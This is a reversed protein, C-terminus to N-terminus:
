NYAKGLNAYCNTGDYTFALIDIANATGTLTFTSGGGGLQKWTCGTGGSLNEGGTGDQKLWIVYSGGNVLGTLNLTRSGSHVTFTLSANACVASGIAWTVTAGDTQSAFAGPVCVSGTNDVLQSSSNSGLVTKSAPIVAGNVKGVTTALSGSSNTVDGSFAPVAATPLTTTPTCTKATSGYVCIQNAAPTATTQTVNTSLIGSDQTQGATGTYSLLDTSVSTTPGTVIGAGSGALAKSSTVTSSTAAIPVQGATMGSLGSAGGTIVNNSIATVRGKNDMTLGCSHTADGCSSGTVVNPLGEDALLGNGDTPLMEASFYNTNDSWWFACEPNHGSVAGVLKQTTNGNITSTTPTITNVVSGVNCTAFAFNSGFSAASAISTATSTTNNTTNVLSVRDTSTVSPTASSQADIAVGPKVNVLKPTADFTLQDGQAPSTITAKVYQTGGGATAVGQIQTSSIWEAAQGSTPTGSNSVNGSGSPTACNANGSAAIGTAFQSGTCQSPTAALATATSANGTTSQNLTPVDSAVIARAAINGSAGSPAALFINQTQSGLVTGLNAVTPTALWTAVGTGPATTALATFATGNTKTCVVVGTSTTITCDGSATFGAFSGASNWQIQGPTGGPVGGPTGGDAQSFNAGWVVTHGSTPPSAAAAYPTVQKATNFFVDAGLTSDYGQAGAITPSYGAGVPFKLANAATSGSLDITGATGMTNATATSMNGGAPMCNGGASTLCTFQHTSSSLYLRDNGVSPNSPDGIEAADQFGNGLGNSFAGSGGGFGNAAITVTTNITVSVSAGGTWSASVKFYDYVGSISPTRIANAVTTYTDLTNCTGGNKCGSIVISVTAPVGTILEEFSANIGGIYNFIQSTSAGNVIITQSNYSRSQAFACCAILPMMVLLRKIYAKIM